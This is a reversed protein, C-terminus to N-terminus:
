VPLICISLAIQNLFAELTAIEHVLLASSLLVVNFQTGGGYVVGTPSVTKLCWVAGCDFKTAKFRQVARLVLTGLDTPIM